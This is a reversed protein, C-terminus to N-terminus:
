GYLHQKHHSHAHGIGDKIFNGPASGSLDAVVGGYSMNKNYFVNITGGASGVEIGRNSNLTLTGVVNDAIGGGNLIIDGPVVSSPM